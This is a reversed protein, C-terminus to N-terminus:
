GAPELLYGHGRVTRLSLGLPKLRARLRMIHARLANASLAPQTAGALQRAKVVEGYQAVLLGAVAEETEGMSVWRGRFLLRGDGKLEPAASHKLGRAALGQMRSRLDEDSAPLRIWDEDCETAIPPDVDAPVVLLRPTGAARLRDLGAAEEPWRLIAVHQPPLGDDHGAGVPWGAPALDVATM